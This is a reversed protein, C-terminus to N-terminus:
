PKQKRGGSRQKPRALDRYPTLIGPAVAVTPKRTKALRPLDLDGRKAVIRYSFGVRSKGDNSERVEFSRSTQKSVFLSNCEGRPTIFVHYHKLRVCRAFATDIQVTTKGARLLGDGFDEFWSDPCELSYMLRHSGDRDRVAASKAGYVTFAGTVSVPGYFAGALGAASQGIVGTGNGQAVGHLADGTGSTAYVASSEESYAYVGAGTISNAYVGSASNGTAEIASVAGNAITNGNEALIGRYMGVAHVGATRGMGYVGADFFSIGHVGTSEASLGVVGAGSASDGLVAAQVGPNIGSTGAVQGKVQSM